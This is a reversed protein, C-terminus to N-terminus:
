DSAVRSTVKEVQEVAQARLPLVELLGPSVRARSWFASIAIGLGPHAEVRRDLRKTVIEVGLGSAAIAASHGDSGLPTLAGVRTRSSSRM